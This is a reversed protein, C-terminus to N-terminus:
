TYSRFYREVYRGQGSAALVRGRDYALRGRLWVQEVRGTLELRDYLSYEAGGHAPPSPFRSPAAPDFLVLDADFGEAIRGKHELGFRRAPNESLLEIARQLSIRGGNVGQSLLLTLREEVGPAGNPILRLDDKGQEKQGISFACHDTAVMDIDGQVLGQWLAANDEGRRLPPSMVARLAQEKEQAYESEELLLYQSCTEVTINKQGRERARRVEQLGAATSLHVIHVPADGAHAAAALVDRVSRAEALAPRSAAHYEPQLRGAAALQQVAQGLLADDECHVCILTGAAKAAKFLRELEPGFIPSGYTTYVKWSPRGAAIGERLAETLEGDVRQAVGHLSYDCCSSGQAQAFAQRWAARCSGESNFSIHEIVTTTGGALAAQSGKEWGDCTSNKGVTLAFHTHVDVGGPLLWLGEADIEEAAKESIKGVRVIKEGKVAVDGYPTNHFLLDYIM